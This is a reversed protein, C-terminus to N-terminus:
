GAEGALEEYYRALHSGGAAGIGFSLVDTVGPYRGSVFVQAGELVCGIILGMSAAGLGASVRPYQRHWRRAFLGIPVAIIVTSLLDYLSWFNTELYYADFPLLELRAWKTQLAKAEWVFTWPNLQWALLLGVYLPLAGAPLLMGGQRKDEPFRRSSGWWFTAGALLGAWSSLIDNVDPTRSQILLQSLEVLVPLVLLFAAPRGRHKEWERRSCAAAVCGAVSFMLAREVFDPWLFPAASQGVITANGFPMVVVKKVQEKLGSVDISVDFPFWSGLFQVIFFAALLATLPHRKFQEKALAWNTRQLGRALLAAVLAGLLAGASNAAVDAFSSTRSPLALQWIEVLISFAAAAATALFVRWAAISAAPRTPRTVVIFLAGFPVFLLLNSIVDPLSLSDFAFLSAQLKRWQQPVSSFDVQFPISTGYAVFLLYLLLPLLRRRNM